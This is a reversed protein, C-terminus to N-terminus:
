LRVQGYAFQGFKTNHYPSTVKLIDNAIEKNKMFLDLTLLLSNQGSIKQFKLTKKKIEHM